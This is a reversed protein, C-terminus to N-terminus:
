ISRFISRIARWDKETKRRRKLCNHGSPLAHWGKALAALLAYRVYVDGNIGMQWQIAQLQKNVHEPIKLHKHLHWILKNTTRIVDIVDNIPPGHYEM